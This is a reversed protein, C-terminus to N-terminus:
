SQCPFSEKWAAWVLDDGSRDEQAPNEDLFKAVVEVLDNANSGKPICFPLTIKGVAVLESGLDFVGTVYGYCRSAEAQQEWTVRGTRTANLFSRCDQTLQNGVVYVGLNEKAPNEARVPSLALATLILASTVWIKRM